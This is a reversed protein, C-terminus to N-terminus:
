LRRAKSLWGVWDFHSLWSGGSDEGGDGASPEGGAAALLLWPLLEDSGGGGGVGLHGNGAGELGAAKLTETSVLVGVLASNAAPLSKESGDIIERVRQQTKM